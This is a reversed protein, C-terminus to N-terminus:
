RIREAMMMCTRSRRGARSRADQAAMKRARFPGALTTAAADRRRAPLLAENNIPTARRDVVRSLAKMSFSTSAFLRGDHGAPSPRCDGADGHRAIRRLPLRGTSAAADATRRQMAPTTRAQQAVATACAEYQRASDGRAAASRRQPPRHHRFRRRRYFYFTFDDAAEYFDALLSSFLATKMRM